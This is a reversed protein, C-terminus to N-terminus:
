SWRPTHRTDHTADHRTRPTDLLAGGAPGASAIASQARLKYSRFEAKTDELEQTVQALQGQQWEGETLTHPTHSTHPTHPTHPVLEKMKEKYVQAAKRLQQLFEERAKAKVEITVRKETEARETEVRQAAAELERRLGDMQLGLGALEEERTAVKQRTEGLHKEALKLLDKLKKIKAQLKGREERDREREAKTREHADVVEQREREARALADRHREDAEKMLKKIHGLQEEGLRHETLMGQMEEVAKKHKEKEEEIRQNLKNRKEV